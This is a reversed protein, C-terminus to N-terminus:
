EYSLFLYVILATHSFIYTSYLLLVLVLQAEGGAVSVNQIGLKNIGLSVPYPACNTVPVSPPVTMPGMM